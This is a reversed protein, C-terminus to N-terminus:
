RKELHLLPYPRGEGDLPSRGAVTFGQAQYFRLAPENSENVDLRAPADDPPPLHALAHRLLAAGVGRRFAPPDVFLMEIQRERSGAFGLLRGGADEALWLRRMAPFYDPVLARGIAELDEPAVFDHTAAVSRRWLDRLAPWDAPAAARIQPPAAPKEPSHGDMRAANLLENEM